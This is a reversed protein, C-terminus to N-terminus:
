QRAQVTRAVAPYEPRGQSGPKGGHEPTPIGALSLCGGAWVTFAGGLREGVTQPPAWCPLVQPQALTTLNDSWLPWVFPESAEHGMGSFFWGPPHHHCGGPPGAEGDHPRPVSSVPTPQAGPDLDRPRRHYGALVAPIGASGPGQDRAFCTREVVRNFGGPGYPRRPLGKPRSPPLGESPNGWVQFVPLHEKHAPRPPWHGVPPSESGVGNHAPGRQRPTSRGARASRHAGM